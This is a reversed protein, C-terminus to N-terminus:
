HEIESQHFILSSLAFQTVGAGCLETNNLAPYVAETITQIHASMLGGHKFSPLAAGFQPQLLPILSLSRGCFMDESQEYKIYVDKVGGLGGPKSVSLPLCLVPQSAALIHQKV